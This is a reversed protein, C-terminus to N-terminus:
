SRLQSGEGPKALHVRLAALFQTFARSMHKINRYVQSDDIEDYEHVLRNRFGAFPSLKNALSRKIVGTDPLALFAEYYSPPTPLHAEFLLGATIDLACDVMTQMTREVSLRIPENEVYEEWTVSGYRILREIYEELKVTKQLLTDRNM